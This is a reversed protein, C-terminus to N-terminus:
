TKGGEVMAMTLMDRGLRDDIQERIRDLVAGDGRALSVLAQASRYRVWWVPDGLLKSLVPVDELSGIRSLAQAAQLRVAWAAHETMRRVEPLDSPEILFRLCQALVEEDTASKMIHRVVPLAKQPPVVELLHLARRLRALEEPESASEMREAADMLFSFSSHEGAEEILIALQAVPWDEREIMRPLLERLAQPADIKLLSGLAAMSLISDPDRTMEVIENWVSHEGLHGLTALGLLKSRLGGQRLLRQAHEAMGCRVAVDNLYQHAPGRLTDQLHNWLKLFPEEEGSKLQPLPTRIGSLEQMLLPRWLELFHKEQEARDRLAYRLRAVQFLMLVILVLMALGTWAAYRIISDSFAASVM